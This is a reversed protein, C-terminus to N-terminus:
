FLEKDICVRLCGVQDKYPLTHLHGNSYYTEFQAKWERLDEPTHQETLLFPKLAEVARARPTDAHAALNAM